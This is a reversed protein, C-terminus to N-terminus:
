STETTEVSSDELGNKSPYCYCKGQEKASLIGKELWSRYLGIFYRGRTTNTTLLENPERHVSLEEVNKGHWRVTSIFLTNDGILLGHFNPMYSYQAIIIESKTSILAQEMTECRKLMYDIQGGTAVAIGETNGPLNKLFEPECQLLTVKVEGVSSNEIEGFVGELALWASQLSVGIWVINCPRTQMTKELYSRMTPLAEQHFDFWTEAPQTREHIEVLLSMLVGLHVIFVGLLLSSGVNSGAPLDLVKSLIPWAPIGIIYTLVLIFFIMKALFTKNKEIWAIVAVFGKKSYRDQIM